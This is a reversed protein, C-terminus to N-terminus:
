PQIMLQLPGWDIPGTRTGQPLTDYSNVVLIGARGDKDHDIAACRGGIGKTSWTGAIQATFKGNGLNRLLLDAPNPKAGGIGSVGQSRLVYVDLDKDGDVDAVALGRISIWSIVQPRGFTWSGTQLRISVNNPTALVLDRKGDGNVDAAVVDTHYASLGLSPAMDKFGKGQRFDNRYIRLGNNGCVFLDDDGDNDVDAAFACAAAGIEATVGTLVREEFKQIGNKVTNIFVRNPSAIGDKRPYENGVFLDPLNDGNLNFFTVQRGRGYPDTVGWAAAQDKFTGDAQQIWLQNAKVATGYAAGVSCYLDPRGDVNPDGWECDLRDKKGFDTRTDEQFRGGINRYLKMPWGLNFLFDPWGDRNYDAVAVHYANATQAIGVAGAIDVMGSNPTQASAGSCVALLAFWACSWTLKFHLPRSAPVSHAGQDGRGIVTNPTGTQVM